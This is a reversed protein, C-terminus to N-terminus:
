NELTPVLISINQLAQMSVFFGLDNINRDPSNEPQFYFHWVGIWAMVMRM